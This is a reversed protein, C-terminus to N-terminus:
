HLFVVKHTRGGTSGDVRLFYVGAAVPRGDGTTGDWRLLYSGAPYSDERLLRGRLDFIRLRANQGPPVELLFRTEGRAPNPWPLGLFPSLPDGGDPYIVLSRSALDAGAGAGVVRVQHRVRDAGPFETLTARATGAVPGVEGAALFSWGSGTFIEVDGPSTWTAPPVWQLEDASWTMPLAQGAVPGTLPRVEALLWGRQSSYLRNSAFSFRLRWPGPGDHPVPVLDVRWLPREGHIEMPGAFGDRGHLAMTSTAALQAPWGDVPEASRTSGDPAVWELTGGDMGEGTPLIETDWAHVVRLATVGPGAAPTTLTAHAEPWYRVDPWDAASQAAGTCILVPGDALDWRLWSTDLDGDPREIRWDGPWNITFDFAATNADWYWTTELYDSQWGGDNVRLIFRTSAGVPVEPDPYWLPAVAPVWTGAAEEVLSLDVSNQGGAFSGHSPVGATLRGVPDSLSAGLSHVILDVEAGAGAAVALEFEVAPGTDASVTFGVPGEWAEIGTISVQSPGHWGRSGPDTTPTFETVALSGPFLDARSGENIGNRVDENGDAEVLRVRLRWSDDNNTLFGGDPVEEDVHTIILDGGPVGADFPAAAAPDRVELLFYELDPRGHTWVRAVQRSSVSPALVFDDAPWRPLDVLDYWGLQWTAYADPLACGHGAGTGWAGAAMISFIGLGGRSHIESAGDDSPLLPDYREELGLLHGTEHAWIGLGSHLSAVAYSSAAVGDGVVPEELYFQLPMVVGGNELGDGAHLILVGDVWGDDDGTGALRDPGDNDLLRLPMGSDRVTEMSIRAM